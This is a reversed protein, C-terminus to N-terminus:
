RAVEDDVNRGLAAVDDETAPRVFVVPGLSTAIEKAMSQNHTLTLVNGGADVVCHAANMLEINM